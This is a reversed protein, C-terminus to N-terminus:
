NKNNFNRELVLVVWGNDIKYVQQYLRTSEFKSLGTDVYFISDPIDKLTKYYESAVVKFQEEVISRQLKTEVLITEGAKIDLSSPRIVLFVDCCLKQNWNKSLKITKM